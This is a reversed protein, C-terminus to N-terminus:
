GLNPTTDKKNVELPKDLTVPLSQGSSLTVENGIQKTVTVYKVKNTIGSYVGKTAGLGGGIAAGSWAGRGAGRGGGAIAGVATGLAAGGAAGIVTDKAGSAVKEGTTRNVAVTATTNSISGSQLPTSSSINLIMGESIELKDFALQISGPMIPESSTANQIQTVTGYVKSNNPIVINNNIIAPTSVTGAVIDGVMSTKSNVTSNLTIGFQTGAPATIKGQFISAINNNPNKNVQAFMVAGAILLAAVAVFIAPKNNKINENM